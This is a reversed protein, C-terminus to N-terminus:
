IVAVNLPGASVRIGNTRGHRQLFKYDTYLVFRLRSASCRARGAIGSAFGYGYHVMIHHLQVIWIMILCSLATEFDSDTIKQFPM